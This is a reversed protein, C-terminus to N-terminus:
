SPSSEDGLQQREQRIGHAGADYRLEAEVGLGRRAVVGAGSAALPIEGVGIAVDGLGVAAIVEVHPVSDVDICADEHGVDAEDGIVLEVVPGLLGVVDGGDVGQNKLPTRTCHNGV